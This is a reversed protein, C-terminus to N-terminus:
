GLKEQTKRWDDYLQMDVNALSSPTELIAKRLDAM